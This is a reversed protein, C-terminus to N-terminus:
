LFISLSELGLVTTDFLVLRNQLKLNEGDRKLVDHREYTLVLPVAADGRYCFTAVNSRVNLTGTGDVSVRINSVMRRTRTRPNESWAYDSSLRAVRMSMSSFDEDMFFARNSFGKGSNKDRTIRVPIRYQLDRDLLELWNSFEWNDLLEAEQNLFRGCEREVQSAAMIEDTEAIKADM